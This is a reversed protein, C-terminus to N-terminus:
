GSDVPCIEYLAFYQYQLDGLKIQHKYGTGLLMYEKVTKVTYGQDLLQKKVTTQSIIGNIMIYYHHDNDITPIQARNVHILTVNPYYSQFYSNTVWYEDTLVIDEDTICSMSEISSHSINDWREELEVIHLCQPVTTFLLITVIIVAMITKTKVNKLWNYICYSFLLWAIISVPYLYRLVMVPHMLNCVILGITISGIIATVGGFVWTGIPTIEIKKKWIDIAAHEKIVLVSCVLCIVCFVIGYENAFLFTLCDSVPPIYTLWYGNVTKLMGSICYLIWPAYFVATIVSIFFIKKRETKNVLVSNAILVFYLLGVAMCAYYHNYAALISFIMFLVYNSTKPENLIKYMYLFSMLVFFAAWEYARIETVYVISSFLFSSLIMFTLSVYFGFEKKIITLSVILILVFPIFSFLQYVFVNHGVISSFIYLSVYYLPPSSSKDWTVNSILDNLTPSTAVIISFGEDVWVLNYNLRPLYLCVITILVLFLIVHEIYYRKWYDIIKHIM